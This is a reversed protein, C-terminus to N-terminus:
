LGAVFITLQMKWTKWLGRQMGIELQSNSDNWNTTEVNEVRAQFTINTVRATDAGRKTQTHVSFSINLM